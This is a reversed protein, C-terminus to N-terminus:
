ELLQSLLVALRALELKPPASPRERRGQTLRQAKLTSSPPLPIDAFAMWVEASSTRAASPELPVM